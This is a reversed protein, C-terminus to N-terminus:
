DPRQWGTAPRHCQGGPWDARRGCPCFYDPRHQASMVGRLGSVIAIGDGIEVVEGVDVQRPAPHFNLIQKKLLATFDQSIDETRIAM